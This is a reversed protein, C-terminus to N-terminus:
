MCGRESTGASIFRYKQIKKKCKSIKFTPMYLSSVNSWISFSRQVAPDNTGKKCPELTGEAAVKANRTM